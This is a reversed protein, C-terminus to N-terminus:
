VDWSLTVALGGQEANNLELTCGLSDALDQVIALGLGTGERSPDLRKGRQLVANLQTNAVGPGNDTITFRVKGNNQVATVVIKDKTWERANDLLNGLMELLNFEDFPATIDTPIDIQWDIPNKSPLKSIANVMRTVVPLVSISTTAAPGIRSRALEREVFHAMANTQANIDDALADMGAERIQQALARMVTLPTKLGHALNGAHNRAQLLNEQQKDLLQNVESVLPAVEAPLNDPMHHSSGSRIKNIEVRIEELPRLGIRVQLWAAFILAVALVSLWLVLKKDFKLATAQIQDYDTAVSLTLETPATDEGITVIWSLAIVEKGALDIRQSEQVGLSTPQALEMKLDWLSRSHLPKTDAANIQWYLGSFPQDFRQDALPYIIFQGEPDIEINATLQQLHTALESLVRDEFYTKFFYSFTIGTALLALLVSISASVLLRLSLSNTKM